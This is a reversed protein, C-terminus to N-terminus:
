HSLNPEHINVPRWCLARVDIQFKDRGSMNEHFYKYQRTSTCHENIESFGSEYIISKM